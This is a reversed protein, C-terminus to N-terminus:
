GLFIVGGLNDTPHGIQIGVEGRITSDAMTLGGIKLAGDAVSLPPMGSFADDSWKLFYGECAYLEATMKLAAAGNRKIEFITKGDLECATTDPHYKMKIGAKEGEKTLHLQNGKAVALKTGDPHFIPIKSTFQETRSTTTDKTFELMPTDKYRIPIRCRFLNTAIVIEPSQAFILSHSPM